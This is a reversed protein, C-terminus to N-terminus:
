LETVLNWHRCGLSELTLPVTESKGEWADRNHKQARILPGLEGQRSMQIETVAGTEGDMHDVWLAPCGSSVTNFEMNSIM